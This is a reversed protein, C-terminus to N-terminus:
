MPCASAAEPESCPSQPPHLGWVGRMTCNVKPRKRNCSILAFNVYSREISKEYNAGLVKFKQKNGYLFVTTLVEINPEEQSLSFVVRRDNQPPFYLFKGRREHSLLGVPYHYAGRNYLHQGEQPLFRGM